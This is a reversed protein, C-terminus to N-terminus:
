EFRLATIPDMQAARRAPYLGFLVGVLGSIGFAITASYMSIVTEWGAFVNIARAMVAGVVIGALGGAVSILVTEVLFQRMISDETAGLARRVGIEKTRETVTTLMINMIGIGGVLLSIGAIAGMVVNFVRQTSQAQALLEAPVVIEFDEIGNHARTLIRKVIGSTTEVQNADSVQVAIESVGGKRDPDPFRSNVATIPTYIDTNIDRLQIVSARAERITKSEMLGVVTFWADGIRIKRGIPNRYGFLEAKAAAGIVAVRKGERVDLPSIFRGRAAKFDTVRSYDDTTGIVRGTAERNGFLVPEDVFRLPAVGSLNPLNRMLVSGDSHTLGSSGKADALEKLDGILDVHNIRINNTGLLRIQEVAERRAGDAISLMSVVAAVGFIIGLTTLLSRLKHALISRVGIRLHESQQM